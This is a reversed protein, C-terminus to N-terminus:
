LISYFRILASISKLVKFCRGTTITLNDVWGMIAPPNFQDSVYVTVNTYTKPTYRVLREHIQEENLFVRLLFEGRDFFQRVTLNYWTNASLPDTHIFQNIIYLDPPNHPPHSIESYVHLQKSEARMWIALIRDGLNGSNTDTNTLRLINKLGGTEFLTIYFQLSVEWTELLTPITRITTNHTIRTGRDLFLLTLCLPIM